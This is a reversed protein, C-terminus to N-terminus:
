FKITGPTTNLGSMSGLFSPTGLGFNGMADSLPNGGGLLGGLGGGLGGGAYASLATGALGGLVSGLSQSTKTTQTGNSDTTGYKGTLSNILNAYSNVGAYPITAAGNLANLQAASLSPELGLASLISQISGNAGALSTANDANTQNGLAQASALQQNDGAQQAGLRLQGTQNYLSGLNTAASLSRDADGAYVSGLSTAAQLNRDKTANYQSDSLGAATNQNGRETAYNQYRLNNNADAVSSGLAQAYPTSMGADMGSGAFRLNQAKTAADTAQQAIQDVYPNNDLYKGGLVDKYYQSTDGNAQGNVMGSLLGLAPSNQTTMGQLQGLAPNNTGISDYAGTGKNAQNQLLGLSPDNAAASQLRTYTGQAPNQGTYISGLATQPTALGNYVDLAKNGISQMLPQNANFVDQSSGLAQDIYPKYADLPSSTTTQQSTTTSKKSSLGM